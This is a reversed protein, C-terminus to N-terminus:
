HSDENLTEVILQNLERIKTLLPEINKDRADSQLNVAMSLAVYIWIQEVPLNPYTRAYRNYQENLKVAADRYFPEQEPKINLAIRHAGIQLTIRQTAAM